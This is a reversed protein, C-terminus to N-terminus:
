KSPSADQPVTIPVRVLGQDDWVWAAGDAAVVVNGTVGIPIRSIRLSPDACILTPGEGDIGCVSGSPTVAYEPDDVTTGTKTLQPIATWSGERYHALPEDISRHANTVERLIPVLTIEHRTALFVCWPSFSPPTQLRSM